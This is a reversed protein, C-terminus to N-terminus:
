VNKKLTYPTYKKMLNLINQISIMSLKQLTATESHMSQTAVIINIMHQVQKVKPSNYRHYCVLRFSPVMRTGCHLGLLDTHM